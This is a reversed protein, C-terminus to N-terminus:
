KEKRLKSGAESAEHRQVVASQPATKPQIRRQSALPSTVPPRFGQSFSLWLSLLDSVHGIGIHGRMRCNNDSRLISSREKEKTSKGQSAVYVNMILM